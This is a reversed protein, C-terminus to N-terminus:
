MDVWFRYGLLSSDGAYLANSLKVAAEGRDRGFPLPQPGVHWNSVLQEAPLPNLQAKSRRAKFV